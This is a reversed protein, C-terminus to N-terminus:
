ASPVRASRQKVMETRQGALRRQAPSSRHMRSSQSVGVDDHSVHLDCQEDDGDHQGDTCGDAPVQEGNTAGLGICGSAGVVLGGGGLRQLVGDIGRYLAGDALYAVLGGGFAVCGDRGREFLGGDQLTLLESCECQRSALLGRDSSPALFSTM